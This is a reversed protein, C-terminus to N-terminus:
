SNCIKVCLYARSIFTSKKKAAESPFIIACLAATQPWFRHQRWGADGSSFIFFSKRRGKRRQAHVCLMWRQCVLPRKEQHPRSLRSQADNPRPAHVISFFLVQARSNIFYDVSGLQPQNNYLREARSGLGRGASHGQDQIITNNATHHARRQPATRLVVEFRLVKIDRAVLCVSM